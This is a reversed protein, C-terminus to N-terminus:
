ARRPGTDDYDLIEFRWGKTEAYRQYMNFLESAFLGAEDRRRRPPNRPHRQAFGSRGQAAPLHPDGARPRSHPTQTGAARGRRPDKMEPDGLMSEADTLAQEAARLEGVREVLPEIESLERSAKVYAEGNLGESLMARLEDARAAIRDLKLTLSM